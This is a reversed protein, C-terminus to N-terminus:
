QLIWRSHQCFGTQHRGVRTEGVSSPSLPLLCPGDHGSQCEDGDYAKAFSSAQWRQNASARRHRAGEQHERSTGWCRELSRMARCRRRKRVRWNGKMLELRGRAHLSLPFWLHRGIKECAVTKVSVKKLVHEWSEWIVQMLFSMLYRM